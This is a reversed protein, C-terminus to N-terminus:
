QGRQNLRNHAGHHFSRSQNVYGESPMDAYDDVGHPNSRRVTSAPTSDDYQKGAPQSGGRGPPGSAGTGLAPTGANVYIWRHYQLEVSVTQYADNSAYGMDQAAINKPYVEFLQVTYRPNEPYARELHHITMEGVYDRYFGVEFSNQSLIHSQWKEFWIKEQMNESCIFSATISAYNYASVPERPPGNRLDDAASQLNQGPFEISECMLGINPDFGGALEPGRGSLVVRYRNKRALGHSIASTFKNLSM